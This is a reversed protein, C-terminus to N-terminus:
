PSSANGNSSGLMEEAELTATVEASVQPVGAVMETVRISIIAKAVAQSVLFFLSVLIISIIVESNLGWTWKRM